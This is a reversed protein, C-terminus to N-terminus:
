SGRLIRMSFGCRFPGPIRLIRMLRKRDLRSPSTGSASSASSVAVPVVSLSDCFTRAAATGLGTGVDANGVYMRVQERAAPVGVM